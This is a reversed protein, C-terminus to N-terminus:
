GVIGRNQLDNILTGLVDALEAVSTSDADFARDVVDNTVTYAEPAHKILIKTSQNDDAGRKTRLILDGDAGSDTADSMWLSFQGADVPIDASKSSHIMDRNDLTTSAGGVRRELVSFSSEKNTIGAVYTSSIYNSTYFLGSVNGDDDDTIKICYRDGSNDTGSNAFINGIFALGSCSDDTLDSGDIEIHSNEGDQGQFLCGSVSIGM